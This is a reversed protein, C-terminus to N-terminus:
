RETGPRAEPAPVNAAVLRQPHLEGDQQLAIGLLGIGAGYVRVRGPPLCAGARDLALKQGHRFRAALAADLDVRPLGALLADAPLLRACRQAPELAELAELTMADDVDLSGVRERRLASLHAGCGLRDGLDIALSRVYTGKSCSMRLEVRPPVFRLVEISRIVVRRPVREVAVGARAYEYLPRGERKLASHMPPVQDIEGVFGALARRVLVEDRPPDRVDLVRGEADGTETAVGLTLEARYTKDADLSDVAFKTAEGFLLPLLGTALPDLTGGHGAKRANLLRRARVLADNSSLGLPKDLLLIGDVPDRKTAIRKTM